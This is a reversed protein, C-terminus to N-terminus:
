PEDRSSIEKVPPSEYLSLPLSTISCPGSIQIPSGLGSISATQSLISSPLASM